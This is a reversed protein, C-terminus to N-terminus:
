GGAGPNGGGFGGGFGATCGDKGATSLTISTAKVAGTSDAPGIAAVCLGVKVAKSTAKVTHEYVTSSPTTVTVDTTTTSGGSPSPRTSKVTFTGASIGTIEGFAGFGGGRRPFGSPPASPFGAPPSAPPTFRGGGFGGPGGQRTCGSASASGTITVTEATVASADSTTTTGTAPRVTVCDGVHLVSRAVKVTERFSTGATYTVATQGAQDNQVQITSGDVAAAVGFAGFGAGGGLRGGNTGAPQQQAATNSNTKSSGSGGGCAAAAVAVLGVAAAHRVIRTVTHSRVRNPLVSHHNM